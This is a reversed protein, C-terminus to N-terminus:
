REYTYLHLEASVTDEDSFEQRVVRYHEMLLAVLDRKVMANFVNKSTLNPAVGFFSVMFFQRKSDTKDGLWFDVLFGHIPDLRYSSLDARVGDVFTTKLWTEFKDGQCDECSYYANATGKEATLRRIKGTIKDVRIVCNESDLITKAM